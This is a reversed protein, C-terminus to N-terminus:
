KTAHWRYSLHHGFLPCVLVVVTTGDRIHATKLRHGHQKGADRLCFLLGLLWLAAIVARPFVSLREGIVLAPSGHAAGQFRCQEDCAREENYSGDGDKQHLSCPVM